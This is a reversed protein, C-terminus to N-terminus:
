SLFWNSQGMDLSKRIQDTFQFANLSRDLFQDIYTTKNAGTFLNYLKWLNINGDEDRCFSDDRYFDKCVGGLQQDGYLMEPIGQKQDQSLYNYMRSRGLLNAFQQETLQYQTLRDMSRAHEVPNYSYLAHHIENQLANLDKVRIDGVFGDSSVCLNTCVKNQFGVFFKFREDAGKKTYLNDQNYAKVGGVTLALTNGDITETLSPIEIAFMMREYYITKEWEKLESAPKNRADPIRGKIPHSMRISPRLITEGHYADSVAEYVSEIFDLQSIAPENDKVFVPIIHNDKLEKLEIVETNASIFSSASSQRSDIVSLERKPKYLTLTPEM